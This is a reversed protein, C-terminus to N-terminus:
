GRTTISEGVKLAEQPSLSGSVNYAVGNHDWRLTVYTGSVKILVGEARGVRVNQMVGDEYDYATGETYGDDGIKRQSVVYHRGEPAAYTMSVLAFDAAIHQAHVQTLNFGPAIYSPPIFFPFKERAEDVTLEYSDGAAQMPAPPPSPSGTEERTYNRTVNVTTDKGFWKHVKLIKSGIATVQEPFVLSSALGVLLLVGAAVAFYFRLGHRRKAPPQLLGREVLKAELRGWSEELPPPEVLSGEVMARRLLIEFDADQKKM